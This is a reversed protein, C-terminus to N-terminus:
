NVASRQLEVMRDRDNTSSALGVMMIDFQSHVMSSTNDLAGAAHIDRIWHHFLHPDVGEIDNMLPMSESASLNMVEIVDRV